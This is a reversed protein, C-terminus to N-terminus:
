YLRNYFNYQIMDCVNNLLKDLYFIKDEIFPLKMIKNFDRYNFHHELFYRYEAEWYRRCCCREEEVVIEEEVVTVETSKLKREEKVKLKRDKREKRKKVVHVPTKFNTLFNVTLIM